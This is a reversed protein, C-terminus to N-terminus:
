VRAENVVETAWAVLRDARKVAEVAERATSRRSEYEVLNKKDILRRLHKASELASPGMIRVLLDVTARHDQGASRVGGHFALIADGASIGAHIAALGASDWQGGVLASEMTALFERAKGM